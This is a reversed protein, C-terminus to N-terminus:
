LASVFDILSQQESASLGQFIQASGASESGPAGHMEIAERITRARGDHMYTTFFRLGVLPATRWDRSRAEGDTMGDALADGLDHLLFDTFVPADLGAIQAIPYDDRTRLTPVHCASCQAREFADRGPGTLADRRPIAITRLYNAVENVQDLTVDVGPKADDTLGDPNPLEVPRMPNTLGMDGQFADATFDDLTPVRSKLGFRGIVREGKAYHHVNTGPNPESAYAIHNIRGHIADGRAAQEAFVREIESDKVAEMYGRGLVPPGIRTSIKVGEIGPPALLPTTAGATTLPRLTHGFPLKSQDAAATVGDADVIAMKQVLGPGRTAHDHCGSCSIRIYLPGLGDVVRFPLDFVADGRRFTDIGAKDLGDIPIDVADVGDTKPVPTASDGNNQSSCAAALASAALALLLSRM